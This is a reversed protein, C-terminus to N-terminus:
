AGVEEVGVCEALAALAARGTRGKGWAEAARENEVESGLWRGVEARLAAAVHARHQSPKYGYARPVECSCYVGARGRVQEHDRLVGEIDPGATQASM